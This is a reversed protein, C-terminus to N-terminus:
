HKLAWDTLRSSAEGIQDATMKTALFSQMTRYLQGDEGSTGLVALSVWFYSETLDMPGLQGSAYIAGLQYQSSAKGKEAAKRLWRVAEAYDTSVGQGDKYMRGLVDQADTNGQEAAKRFWRSAETYDESLGQGEYYMLGVDFQADPRGQDAAKRLWRMAEPYNHGQYYMVGVNFQAKADGKAAKNQLSKPVTIEQGGVVIPTLLFVFLRLAKLETSVFMTKSM